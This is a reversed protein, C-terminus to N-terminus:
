QITPVEDIVPRATPDWVVNQPHGIWRFFGTLLALNLVLFTGAIRALQAARGRRPVMLGIVAVCYGVAQMRFCLHYFPHSSLALSTAMLTVLLFPGIWRMLKHSVFAVAHRAHRWRFLRSLEPLSQFAGAGIRSRRRFESALGGSSLMTACASEDYVTGCGHRLQSLIPLVFDDNIIPRQPEVFLSRRIAYIPGSAGLMIGLRMESRRIMMEMKWYTSEVPEGLENILSVRGTAIGIDPNTFHRALNRIASHEFRNTADTFLVVDSDVKRVADVLTRTKGRREAFEIARVHPLNLAEVTQVTADDSGDSAVLIDIRDSPYECALVNEIRQRIHQEANYAVILVTVHPLDDQHLSTTSPKKAPFLRAALAVLVPYGVYNYLLAALSLWFLLTLTSTAVSDAILPM